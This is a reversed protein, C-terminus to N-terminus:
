RDMRQLEDGLFRAAPVERGDAFRILYAEGTTSSRSAIQEIFQQATSVHEGMKNFKGRLFKAADKSSYASGNRLFRIDKQSEVYQILREIRAQEAAPPAAHAALAAVGLLLVARRRM